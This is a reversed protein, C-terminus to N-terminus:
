EFTFSRDLGDIYLNGHEDEMMDESNVCMKMVVEPFNVRLENMQRTIEQILYERYFNNEEEKHLNPYSYLRKQEEAKIYEEANVWPKYM